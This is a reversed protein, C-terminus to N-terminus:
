KESEIEYLLTDMVQSRFGPHSLPHESYEQNCYTRPGSSWSNCLATGTVKANPGTQLAATWERFKMPRTPDLSPDLVFLEGQFRIAPAVHYKWEAGGRTVLDGFAYVQGPVPYKMDQLLRNALFARITCGEAQEWPIARPDTPASFADWHSSRIVEFMEQIEDLSRAEPADMMNPGAGSEAMGEPTKWRESRPVSKLLTLDNIRLYRTRNRDRPTRGENKLLYREVIKAMWNANSNEKAVQAFASQGGLVFLAALALHSLRFRAKTM